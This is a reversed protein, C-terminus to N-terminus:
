IDGLGKMQKKIRKICDYVLKLCDEVAEISKIRQVQTRWHAPLEAIRENEHDGQGVTDSSAMAQRIEECRRRAYKGRWLSQAIVVKRGYQRWGKM